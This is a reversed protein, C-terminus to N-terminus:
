VFNIKSVDAAVGAWPFWGHSGRLEVRGFDAFQDLGADLLDLQGGFRAVFAGHGRHGVADHADVAEGVHHLAFHDLQGVGGVRECQVQFAVRDAGHDQAVVLVQALAVGGLGGAADEFHRDTRFQEAADDVCEAFRDVALARDFGLERGRNFGNGRAHDPALRDVLRHLGAVLRDVRHDRDSTALALQDDAVALGALGGHRDVRDDVLLVGANLADVDRDALLVRGDGVDHA